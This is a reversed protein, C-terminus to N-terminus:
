RWPLSDRSSASKRGSSHHSPCRMSSLVRVLTIFSSVSARTAVNEVLSSTSNSCASIAVPEFTFRRRM